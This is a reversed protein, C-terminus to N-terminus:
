KIRVPIGCVVEFVSDAAISLRCNLDGLIKIYNITDEDYLLGDSFVENTVVVLAKCSHSLATIFDIIESQANKNKEDFVENATLNSLCELLVASDSSITPMKATYSEITEFGKGARQKRHKEIRARGEEGFPKMAALYYLQGAGLKTKLAAATNEAYESKGSGSGGTILILM